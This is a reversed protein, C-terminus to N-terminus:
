EFIRVESPSAAKNVWETLAIIGDNLHESNAVIDLKASLDLPKVRASKKNRADPQQQVPAAEVDDYNSTDTDTVIANSEDAQISYSASASISASISADAISDGGVTSPSLVVETGVDGQKDEDEDDVEVTLQSQKPVGGGGQLFNLVSEFDSYEMQLNWMEDMATDVVKLNYGLDVLRGRLKDMPNLSDNPIHPESAKKAEEDEKRQKAKMRKMRKKKANSMAANSADASLNEQVM